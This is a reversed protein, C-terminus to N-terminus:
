LPRGGADHKAGPSSERQSVGFIHSDTLYLQDGARRDWPLRSSSKEHGTARPASMSPMSERGCMRVYLGIPSMQM